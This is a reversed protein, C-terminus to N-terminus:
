KRDARAARQAARKAAREQVIPETEAISREARELLAADGIEEAREAALKYLGLAKEPWPRGHSFRFRDGALLMGETSLRPYVEDRFEEFWDHIPSDPVRPIDGYQGLTASLYGDLDRAFWEFDVTKPLDGKDAAPDRKWREYLYINARVWAELESEFSNVSGLGPTGWPRRAQRGHTLEHYITDSEREVFEEWPEGDIYDPLFVSDYLPIYSPSGSDVIFIQPLRLRGTVDRYKALLERGVADESLHAVIARKLAEPAPTYEQVMEEGFTRDFLPVAQPRMALPAGALMVGILLGTLIRRGSWARRIKPNKRGKILRVVAKVLAVITMPVFAGAAAGLMLTGSFAAFHIPVIDLFVPAFTGLAAGALIGYFTGAKKTVVPRKEPAKRESGGPAVASRKRFLGLGRSGSRGSVSAGSAGLGVPRLAPLASARAPLVGGEERGAWNAGISGLIRARLKVFGARARSVTSAGPASRVRTGVAPLGAVAGGSVQAAKGSVPAAKAAPLSATRWMSVPAVPAGARAAAHGVFSAYESFAASFGRSVAAESPAGALPAGGPALSAEVLGTGPLVPAVSPGASLAGGILHSGGIGASLSPVSAPAAGTGSPAAVRVSMAASVPSSLGLSGALLISLFRRVSNTYAPFASGDPPM